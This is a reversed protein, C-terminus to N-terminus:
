YVGFQPNPNNIYPPPVINNPVPPPPIVPYKGEVLPNKFYKITKAATNIAKKRGSM